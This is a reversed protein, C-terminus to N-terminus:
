LCAEPESSFIPLLPGSPSIEASFHFSIKLFPLPVPPLGSSSLMVSPCGDPLQPRFGPTPFCGLQLCLPSPSPSMVTWCVHLRPGLFFPAPLFTQSFVAPSNWFRLFIDVQLGLFRLGSFFCWACWVQRGAALDRCPSSSSCVCLDAPFRQDLQPRPRCAAWSATM